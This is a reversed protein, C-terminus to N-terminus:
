LVEGVWQLAEKGSIINFAQIIDRTSRRSELTSIPQGYLVDVFFSGNKVGREGTWLHGRQGFGRGGHPHGCKVDHV